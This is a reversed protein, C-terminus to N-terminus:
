IISDFTKLRFLLYGLLLIVVRKLFDHIEYKLDFSNRTCGLYKQKIFLYVFFLM